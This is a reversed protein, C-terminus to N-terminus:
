AKLGANEAAVKALGSWDIDGLGRAVASLMQDRVLSAIPMPTAEADAAQLVLRVDKLGLRLKFGPPVFRQEMMTKSYREYAPSQFYFGNMIEMFQALDAGSKRLLAFAESLSEVMSMILFNGVLKVLTASPADPGIIFLKRGLPELLPRCREVAALPGAAVIVLRAAEAADPRGFVPSAVFSQEHQRHTEV